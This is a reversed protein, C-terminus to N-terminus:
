LEKGVEAVRGTRPGVGPTTPADSRPNLRPAVGPLTPGGPGAPRATVVRAPAARGRGEPARAIPEAVQPADVVPSIAVWKMGEACSWPMASVVAAPSSATTPMKSM